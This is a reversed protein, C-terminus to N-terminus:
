KRLKGYGNCRPCRFKGTGGCAVHMQPVLYVKGTYPDYSQVSIVGSGLCDRCDIMGTGFCSDCLVVDSQSNQHYRYKPTSSSKKPIIDDVYKGARKEVERAASKGCSTSIFASFLILIYILYIRFNKM